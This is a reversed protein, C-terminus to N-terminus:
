CDYIKCYAKQTTQIDNESDDNGFPMKYGGGVQGVLQQTIGLIALITVSAKIVLFKGFGFLNETEKYVNEDSYQNYIIITYKCLSLISFVAFLLLVASIASFTIYIVRGSRSASYDGITAILILLTRTWWAHFLRWTSNVYFRERDKPCGCHMTFTQCCFRECFLPDENKMLVGVTAVPGGINVILLTVFSNLSM